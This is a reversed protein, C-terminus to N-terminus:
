DHRLCELILTPKLGQPLRKANMSEICGKKGVRAISGACFLPLPEL